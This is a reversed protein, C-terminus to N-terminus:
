TRTPYRTSGGSFKTTLNSGIPLPASPSPAPNASMTYSPWSTTATGIDRQEVNSQLPMLFSQFNPGISTGAVTQLLRISEWHPRDRLTFRSFRAEYAVFAGVTAAGFVLVLVIM